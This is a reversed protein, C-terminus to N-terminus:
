GKSDLYWHGPSFCMCIKTGALWGPRSARVRGRGRGRGGRRTGPRRAGRRARPWGSGDCSGVLAAFRQVKPPCRCGAELDPTGDPYVRNGMRSRHREPGLRQFVKRLCFSSGIFILTGPGGLGRVLRAIRFRATRVPRAAFCVPASANKGAAQCGRRAIGQAGNTPACLAVAAGFAGRPRDAM